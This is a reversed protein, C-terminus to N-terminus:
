SCWSNRRAYTYNERFSGAWHLELNTRYPPRFASWLASFKCSEEIKFQLEEPLGASSCNHLRGVGRVMTRFWCFYLVFIGHQGRWVLAKSASTATDDIEIVISKRASRTGLLYIKCPTTFPNSFIDTLYASIRDVRKSSLNLWSDSEPHMRSNRNQM